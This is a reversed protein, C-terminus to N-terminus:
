QAIWDWSRSGLTRLMEARARQDAADMRLKLGKVSVLINKFYVGRALPDTTKEEILESFSVFDDLGALGELSEIDIIELPAIEFPAAVKLLGANDVDRDIKQQVSPSRPFSSPLCVLPYIKRITRTDIGPIILEGRALDAISTDLQRVKPYLVQQFAQDIKDRNLTEVVRRAVRGHHMEFIVLRDGEMVFFDCSRRDGKYIVEGHFYAESREAIRHVQKGAYQEYFKGALGGFEKAAARRAEPDDGALAVGADMASYFIGLGLANDLARPNLLYYHDAIQVFPKELVLFHGRDRLAVLPEEGLAEDLSEPTWSHNDLWAQLADRRIAYRSLPPVGNVGADRPDFYDLLASICGQYDEFSMGVTDQVLSRVEGGTKGSLGADSWEVFALYRNAVNLFRERHSSTVAFAAEISEPEIYYKNTLPNRREAFNYIGLLRLFNVSRGLAFENRVRVGFLALNALQTTSTIRLGNDIGDSLEKPLEDYFTTALDRWFAVGARGQDEANALSHAITMARRLLTDLPVGLVAQLLLEDVSPEDDNAGVALLLESGERELRDNM